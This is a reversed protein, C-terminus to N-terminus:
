KWGNRFGKADPYLIIERNRYCCLKEVNLNSLSGCALWIYNPFLGKCISAIVATKAAEVIAVKKHPELQLLHEGFFCQRLQFDSKIKGQKKLRAHMWNTKVEIQEADNNIFFESVRKGAERM